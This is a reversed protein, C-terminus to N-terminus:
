PLTHRSDVSSYLNTRPTTPRTRRALRDRADTLRAGREHLVDGMAVIWRTVVRLEEDTFGDQRAALQETLRRWPATEGPPAVAAVVTRRRDEDDQWRVARGLAVLRDVVTTTGSRTLGLREALATMSIARPRDVLQLCALEVERLGLLRAQEHHHRRLAVALRGVLAEAPWRRDALRDRELRAQAEAEDM